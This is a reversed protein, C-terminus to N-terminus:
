SYGLYSTNGTYNFSSVGFNHGEMQEVLEANKVGAGAWPQIGKARMAEFEAETAMPEGKVTSFMCCCYAYSYPDITCKGLNDEPFFVHQRYKKGHKKYIAVTEDRLYDLAERLPKRWKQNWGPHGGTSCGCDDSWRGVGHFCSWSSVPKIEFTSSVFLFNAISISGCLVPKKTGSSGMFLTAFVFAYGM